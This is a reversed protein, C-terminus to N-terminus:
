PMMWVLNLPFQKRSLRVLYVQLSLRYRYFIKKIM